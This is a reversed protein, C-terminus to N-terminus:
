AGRASSLEKPITTFAVSTKGPFEKKGERLEERGGERSKRGEKRCFHVAEMYSLKLLCPLISIGQTLALFGTATTEM